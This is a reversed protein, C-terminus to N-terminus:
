LFRMAQDDELNVVFSPQMDLYQAPLKKEKSKDKDNSDANDGGSESDSPSANDADSAAAEDTQAAEAKHHKAPKHRITFYSVDVVSILVVTLGIAALLMGKRKIGGAAASPAPAPEEAPAAKANAM